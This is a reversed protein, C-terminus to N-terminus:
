QLAQTIPNARFPIPIPKKKELKGTSQLRYFWQDLIQFFDNEKLPLIRSFKLSDIRNKERLLMNTRNNAKALSDVKNVLKNSLGFLISDSVRQNIAVQNIAKFLEPVQNIKQTRPGMFAIVGITSGVALIIVVGHTVVAVPLGLAKALDTFLKLITLM